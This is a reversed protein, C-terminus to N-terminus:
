AQDHNAGGTQKKGAMMNAFLLYISLFDGAQGAPSKEPSGGKLFMNYFM